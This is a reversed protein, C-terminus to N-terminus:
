SSIEYKVAPIMTPICNQFGTAAMTKSYTYGLQSSFADPRWSEQEIEGRTCRLIHVGLPANDWGTRTGHKCCTTNGRLAPGAIWNKRSTGMSPSITQLVVRIYLVVAEVQPNPVPFNYIGGCQM